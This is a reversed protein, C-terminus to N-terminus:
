SFPQMRAGLSRRCRTTRRVSGAVLIGLKPQRFVKTLSLATTTRRCPIRRISSGGDDELPRLQKRIVDISLAKFSSVGEIVLHEQVISLYTAERGQGAHADEVPRGKLNRFSALLENASLLPTTV